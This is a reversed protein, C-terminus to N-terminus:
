RKAEASASSPGPNEQFDKLFDVDPVEKLPISVSRRGSADAPRVVTALLTDGLCILTDRPRPSYFTLGTLEETSPFRPGTVPDDIASIRILIKEGQADASWQIHHVALWFQLVAATPAVWIRGEHFHDALGELAKVDEEPFLPAEIDSPMGLHTYVILYGEEALLKRLVAPHLAHHLTHRTPNAWLGAPHRNYRTFELITQADRLRTAYALHSMIAQRRVTASRGMIRKLINKLVNAVRRRQRSFHRDRGQRGSLPWGLLEGGWYFRVGLAEILDATYYASVPDDGMFGKQTRAYFNQHNIPAGHNSWIPVTLNRISLAATLRQAMSRLFEAQPPDVDFAGWSHITDILGSELCCRILEADESPTAGDDLFYALHHYRKGVGFFSDAVPLGLGTQPCNLCQHVQVFTRRDCRDIDSALALAAQYPFPFPRLDVASMLSTQRNKQDTAQM